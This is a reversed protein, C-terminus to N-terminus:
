GGLQEAIKRREDREAKDAMKFAEEWTNGYGKVEFAERVPFGSGELNGYTAIGVARLIGDQVAGARNFAPGYPHGWPWRRRAEAEAEDHTM